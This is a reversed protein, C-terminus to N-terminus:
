QQHISDVVNQLVRGANLDGPNTFTATEIELQSLDVSDFWRDYNITLTVEGSRNADSISVLPNLLLNRTALAAGTSISISGSGGGALTYGGELYLTKGVMNPDGVASPLNITDDDAALPELSIGCYDNTPPSLSGIEIAVGDTALLDIVYPIGTSTPTATTHASAVPLLFDLTRELFVIFSADCETKITSSWLVLYARTLTISDGLDNSFTKAGAAQPAGIAAMPAAALDLRTAESSSSSSSGCGSLIALAFFMMSVKTFTSTM